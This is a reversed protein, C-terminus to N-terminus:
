ETIETRSGPLKERPEKNKGSNEDIDSVESPEDQQKAAPLDERISESTEQPNIRQPPAPTHHPDFPEPSKRDTTTMTLSKEIM